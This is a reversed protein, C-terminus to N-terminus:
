LAEAFVLNTQLHNPHKSLYSQASQICEELNGAQLLVSSLNEPPSKGGDTKELALLALQGARTKQNQSLAYEALATILEPHEPLPDQLKSILNGAAAYYKNDLLSRIIDSIEQVNEAMGEPESIAKTLEQWAKDNVQPQQLGAKVKNLNAALKGHLKQNQDAAEKLLKLAAESNGALQNLLSLTVSEQISSPEPNQKALLTRAVKPGLDPVEKNLAKIWKELNAADMTFLIGSMMEVMAEPTLPRSLMIQMGPDPNLAQVFESQDEVLDFLCTLPFLWGDQPSLQGIIEQWTKGSNKEGLLALSLQFADGLSLIQDTSNEYDQYTQHVQNRLEAPLDSFSNIPWNVLDSYERNLM